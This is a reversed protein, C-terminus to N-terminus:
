VMGVNQWDRFPVQEDIRSSVKYQAHLVATEEVELHIQMHPEAGAPAQRWRDQVFGEPPRSAPGAINNAATCSDCTTYTKPHRCASVIGVSRRGADSFRWIRQVGVIRLNISAVGSDSDEGDAVLREARAGACRAPACRSQAIARLPATSGTQRRGNMPKFRVEATVDACKRIQGKESRALFSAFFLLHFDGV